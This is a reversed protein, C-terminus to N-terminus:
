HDHEPTLAAYKGYKEKIRDRIRDIDYGSKYMGRADIAIEQCM